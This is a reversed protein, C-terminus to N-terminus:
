GMFSGFTPLYVMCPHDPITEYGSMILLNIQIVTVPLVGWRQPGLTAVNSNGGTAPVTGRWTPKQTSADLSGLFVPFYFVLWFGVIRWGKFFLSISKDDLIEINSEWVGLATAACRLLLAGCQTKQRDQPTGWRSRRAKPNSRCIQWHPSYRQWSEQEMLNWVEAGKRVFYKQQGIKNQQVPKVKVPPHIM